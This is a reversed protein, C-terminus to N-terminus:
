QSTYLKIVYIKIGTKQNMGLWFAFYMRITWSSGWAAFKNAFHAKLAHFSENSLTEAGFRKDVLWLTQELYKHVNKPITKCKNLKQSCKVM